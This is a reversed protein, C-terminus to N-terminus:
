MWVFCNNFILPEKSHSDDYLATTTRLFRMVHHLNNFIKFETLINVRIFLNSFMVQSLQTHRLFVDGVNKATVKSLM